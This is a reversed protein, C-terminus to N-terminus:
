SIFDHKQLEADNQFFKNVIDEYNNTSNTKQIKKLIKKNNVFQHSYYYWFEKMRGLISAPGFLVKSYEQYVEDHFDKLIEIKDAIQLTNDSKIEGPLFPNVMAGRGIMWKTIDPFRKKLEIIDEYYFIDGNYVVQHDILKYCKEFVDLFVTGEYMQIGTRAHITVEALEHKNFVPILNFIEDTTIRGLRVKISLRNPINPIINSLLEDMKEPFPLIGSGRGRKAVMKHPCGFNLNVDKYGLNFLLKSVNIIDEADNGIIQPILPMANNNEPLVERFVKPKLKVGKFSAIFPTIAIDFGGFHKHFANRYISDTVGRIPALYLTDNM